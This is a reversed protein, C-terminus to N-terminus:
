RNSLPFHTVGPMLQVGQIMCLYQISTQSEGKLGRKRIKWNKGNKGNKGDNKRESRKLLNL